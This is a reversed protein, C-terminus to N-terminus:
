SGQPAKAGAKRPPMAILKPPSLAIALALRRLMVPRDHVLAAMDFPPLKDAHPGNYPHPTGNPKTKPM